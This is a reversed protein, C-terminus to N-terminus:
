AIPLSSEIDFGKPGQKLVFKGGFTEWIWGSYGFGGIGL